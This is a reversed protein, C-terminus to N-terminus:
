GEKGAARRHADIETVVEPPPVVAKIRRYFDKAAGYAIQTDESIWRDWWDSFADSIIELEPKAAPESSSIKTGTLVPNTTAAEIAARLIQLMKSDEPKAFWTDGGDILDTIWREAERAAALLNDATTV